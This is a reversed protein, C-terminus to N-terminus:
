AQGITPVALVPVGAAVVTASSGDVASALLDIHDGPRLFGVADADAVRVPAAVLDPGWGPLLHPGIVRQDTFAEGARMPGALVRGVEDDRAITGSPVADPPFLRTTIHDATLVLGGDLDHAAVIVPSSPTPTPSAAEIALATAAAALGAAL